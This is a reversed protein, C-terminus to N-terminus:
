PKLKKDNKISANYYGNSNCSLELVNGGSYLNWVTKEQTKQVLVLPVLWMCSGM